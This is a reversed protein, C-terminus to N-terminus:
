GHVDRISCDIWEVEVQNTDGKDIRKDSVRILPVVYDVLLELMELGVGKRLLNISRSM